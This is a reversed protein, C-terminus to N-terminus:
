LEDEERQVIEWGAPYQAPTWVNANILSRYLEEGWWGCEGSAFAAGATIIDPILRYGERYGIDEWLAPANNPDDEEMDWLDVAARKVTGRWNIRTGARVLAGSYALRPFLSPAESATKDDTLTMAQEIIARYKRAKKLFDM